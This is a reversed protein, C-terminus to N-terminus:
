VLVEREQNQKLEILERIDEIGLAHAIAALHKKNLSNRRGNVLDSLTAPPVGSMDSLELQTLNHKKLLEKIKIYIIM